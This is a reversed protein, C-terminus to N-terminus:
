TTKVFLEEFQKVYRDLSFEEKVRQHGKQGFSNRLEPNEILTTLAKSFAEENNPEILFGTENNQIIEKLGGLDSGIVPKQAYMAEVAVLGFSEAETSPMVAIDTIHWIANLDKTFPLIKVKDELKNEVIKQEIESLYYEQGLVPSGVFLLKVNDYNSFYNIFTNLMWKHGKLRSIRGVLTIVCDNQEFGIESKSLLSNSNTNFEIGNLIVISKSELNPERIILNNRTASSNCVVVDAYKRLLKPFIKAIIKPHVIIEHVHWIHKIKAKRSYFAGLLVALTNSYIIDFHYEDNLKKITKLSTSLQKFFLVINKPTFINRYLKLVPAIVVKVGIKELEDKLPGNLPLIVVSTYKKKDLQQLLLLLTKDSGYLDSSQHIFLISIM